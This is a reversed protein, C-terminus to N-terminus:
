SKSLELSRRIIFALADLFDCLICPPLISEKNALDFLFKRDPFENQVM